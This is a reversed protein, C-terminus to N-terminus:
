EGGEGDGGRRGNPSVEGALVCGGGTGVGGCVPEDGAVTRDCHGRGEAPDRRVGSRARGYLTALTPRRRRTRRRADYEDRALLATPVRPHVRRPIPPRPNPPHTRRQTYTTTHAPKRFRSSLPLTLLQQRLKIQIHPSLSLAYLTWTLASSSTEHGTPFRSCRYVSISLIPVYWCRPIDINSVTNRQSIATTLAYGGPQFTSICMIFDTDTGLVLLPPLARVYYVSCIEETQIHRALWTIQRYKNYGNTSWNLTLVTYLLLLRMRQRAIEDSYFRLAVNDVFTETPYFLLIVVPV